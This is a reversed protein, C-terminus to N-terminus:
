LASIMKFYPKFLSYYKMGNDKDYTKVIAARIGNLNKAKDKNKELFSVFDGPDTVDSHAFIIDAFHRIKDQQSFAKVDYSYSDDKVTKYIIQGQKQGYVHVLIEHLAVLNNKGFCNIFTDVEEKNFETSNESTPKAPSKKSSTESSKKQAKKKSKKPSPAEKSSASEDLIDAYVNDFVPEEWSFADVNDSENVSSIDGLVPTNMPFASDINQEESFVDDVVQNVVPVEETGARSDADASVNANADASSGADAKVDAASSVADANANVNADASSSANTEADASDDTSKHRQLGLKCYNVNIRNVTVGKKKWFRVAPDFGTDNSMVIYETSEQGDKGILYGLYSILQFDLANQGEFCEEFQIARKEQLLKIVSTYSMHPSKKTYFIIIEDEEDAMNLLMLWNDNVNESDVLYYKIKSVVLGSM